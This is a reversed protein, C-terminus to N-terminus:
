GCASYEGLVVAFRFMRDHPPGDAAIERYDASPWRNLLCMGQLETVAGVVSLMEGNSVDVDASQSNEYYEPIAQRLYERAEEQSKGPIGWDTYKELEVIRELLIQAAMHKAIKKSKGFGYSSLDDVTLHYVYTPEHIQGEATVLNYTAITRKKSCLDQLFSIPTKVIIGTSPHTDM